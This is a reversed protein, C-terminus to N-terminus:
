IDDYFLLKIGLSKTAIMLFVGLKLRKSFTNQLPPDLSTFGSACRFLRGGLSARGKKYSILFYDSGIAHFYSKSQFYKKLSLPPSILM